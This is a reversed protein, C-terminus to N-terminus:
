GIGLGRQRGFTWEIGGARAIGSVHRGLERELAPRWPVLSFGLGDDIMAFRGSALSLRKRYTGAVYEGEALPRHALGTEATIRSVALDLERRRLTELLDRAFTVRSGERRVLGESALHDIRAQLAERVERGFGGESLPSKERVLLQHDLWTAGSATVQAELTLDSRVSLVLSSRSKGEPELTRAAVIGGFSPAHELRDLDPFRVYHVRGDVGDIVAFTEGTLEDHMAKGVLRGIVTPRDEPAHIVYATISREIGQEKLVRHMITITDRRAGLENLAREANEAVIWRGPGDPEALSWRELRQLRGIMLRRLEPDTPDTPSPRLDILGTDDAQRAIARDLRTWREALVERELESHVERENKHGLELTVLEEARARMGHSIYDRSIILNQGDDAKGRVLLHVHPNDTNWHEAAVWDLRTKLDREMDAVLDRTFAKLNLMRTAEEPSVIFRFHHRDDRCREVFNKEDAADGHANFLKAKEGDSTVGERRLYRIHAALAVSRLRRGSHRVVRAKVVVRRMPNFLRDSRLGVGRGRGFTSRKMSVRRASPLRKGVYGAKRAATLVEAFFSKPRARAGRSRIRGPRLRLDDDGSKGKVANERL